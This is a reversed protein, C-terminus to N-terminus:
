RKPPTGPLDLDIKPLSGVVDGRYPTLGAHTSSLDFDVSVNTKNDASAAGATPTLPKVLPEVSEDPGIPLLVDVDESESPGGADHLNRAMQYLFLVDQYAPLDFLEQQDDKRGFAMAELVAMADLPRPWVKQLRAIHDPYDVLLRGANPDHDWEPAISNFRQNFRRRMLEYDDRDGRRRYMDLLKLYPLPVSGGTSRLHALLLDIAADDHGLAIFFDAEQELDIQEDVTVARNAEGFDSRHDGSKTPMALTSPAGPKMVSTDSAFAVSARGTPLKADAADVESADVKTEPSHDRSDQYWAGRRPAKLAQRLKWALGLAALTSLLALAALWPMWSASSQAKVLQAQIALTAELQSKSDERLKNLQAELLALKQEAASAAQQASRASAEAASAQAQAAELVGRSYTVAGSDLQLRGREPASPVATTGGDARPTAPAEPSSAALAPRRANVTRTRPTPSPPVDTAAAQRASRRPASGGDAARPPTASSTSPPTEAEEDRAATALAIPPDALLTYTRSFTTPCGGHVTLTIVPEEVPATSTIRLIRTGQMDGQAGQTLRARVANSPWLTEGHMVEVRVCESPLQEGADLMVPVAVSLPQGLTVVSRIRGFSVAQADASAISATVGACLALVSLRM